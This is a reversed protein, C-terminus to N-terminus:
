DVCRITAAEGPTSATEEATARSGPIGTLWSAAEAGRTGPPEGPERYASGM